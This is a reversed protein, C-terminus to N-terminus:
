VQEYQNRRVNSRGVYMLILALITVIAVSVFIMTMLGSKMQASVPLISFVSAIMILITLVTLTEQDKEDGYALAFVLPFLMMIIAVSLMQWIIHSLATMSEPSSLFMSPGVFDSMAFLKAVLIISIAFIFTKPNLGLGEVPSSSADAMESSDRIASIMVVLLAFGMITDLFHLTAGEIGGFFVIAMLLAVAANMGMNALRKLKPADTRNNYALASFFAGVYLYAIAGMRMMVTEAGQECKNQGTLLQCPDVFGLLGYMSLSFLLNVASFIYLQWLGNTEFITM